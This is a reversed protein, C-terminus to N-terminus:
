RYKCSPQHCEKEREEGPGGWARPPFVFWFVREPLGSTKVLTDEMASSSFRSSGASGMGLVAGSQFTVHLSPGFPLFSSTMGLHPFPCYLSSSLAARPRPQCTQPTRRPRHSLLHLHNLYDQPFFACPKPSQTQSHVGTVWEKQTHCKNPSLSLTAVWIQPLLLGTDAICSGLRPSLPPMVLGEQFYTFHGALLMYTHAHTHTLLYVRADEMRTRLSQM